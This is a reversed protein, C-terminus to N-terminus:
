SCPLMTHSVPSIEREDWGRKNRVALSGGEWRGEGRVSSGDRRDAVTETWGENGDRRGQRARRSGSLEARTM